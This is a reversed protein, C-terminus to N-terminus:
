KKEFTNLLYSLGFQVHNFRSYEPLSESSIPLILNAVLNLQMKDDGFSIMPQIEHISFPNATAIKSVYSEKNFDEPYYTIKELDIRNWRYVLDFKLTTFSIHGGIQWFARYNKYHILNENEYRPSSFLPSQNEYNETGEHYGFGIYSDIHAGVKRYVDQKGKLNFQKDTYKAKYMGVAISGQPRFQNFRFDAFAAVNKIPSYNAYKGLYAGSNTSHIWQGKDYVTRAGDFSPTYMGSFQHCSTLLGIALTCFVFLYKM